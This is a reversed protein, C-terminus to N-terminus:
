MGAWKQFGSVTRLYTQRSSHLGAHRHTHTHTNQCRHSIAHTHTLARTYRYIDSISHTSCNHTNRYKHSTRSTQGGRSSCVCVSGKTLHSSSSCSGHFSSSSHTNCMHLYVNDIYLVNVDRERYICVGCWVTLCISWDRLSFIFVVRFSRLFIFSSWLFFFSSCYMNANIHINQTCYRHWYICM